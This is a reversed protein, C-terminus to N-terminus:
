TGKELVDHRRSDEQKEKEIRQQMRSTAIGERAELSSESTASEAALAVASVDLVNFGTASM